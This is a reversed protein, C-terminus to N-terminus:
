TTLDEWRADPDDAPEWPDRHARVLRGTYRAVPIRNPGITAPNADLITLTGWVTGDPRTEVHETRYRAM